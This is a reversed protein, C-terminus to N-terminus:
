PVVRIVARRAKWDDVGDPEERGEEASVAFFFDGLGGSQLIEAIENARKVAISPDEAMVTGDSLLTAGSSGSVEIRSADIKAAYHLLRRKPPM